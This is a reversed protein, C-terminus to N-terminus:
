TTPSLKTETQGLACHHRSCEAELLDDGVQAGGGVPDWTRTMALLSAVFCDPASLGDQIAESRECHRMPPPMTQDWTKTM